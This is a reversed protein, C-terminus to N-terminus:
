ATLLVCEGFKDAPCRFGLTKRPRQNLQLEIKNLDAQSHESLDSSKPLYQRLALEVIAQKSRSRFFAPICCLTITALKLLHRM